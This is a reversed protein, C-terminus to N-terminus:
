SPMRLVRTPVGAAIAGAPVDRTVVSGAGMVCGERLTVGSTIVAKTCIRCDEGIIVDRERMLQDTVPPLDHEPDAGLNVALGSQGGLQRALAQILPGFVHKIARLFTM